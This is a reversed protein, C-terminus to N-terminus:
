AAVMFQGNDLTVRQEIWYPKTSISKKYEALRKVFLKNRIRRM